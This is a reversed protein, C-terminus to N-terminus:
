YTASHYKFFLTSVDPLTFNDAYYIFNRCNGKIVAVNTGNLICDWTHGYGMIHPLYDKAIKKITEHPSNQLEIDIVKKHDDADDGM